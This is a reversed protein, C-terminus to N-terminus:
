PVAERDAAPSTRRRHNSRCRLRTRIGFATSLIVSFVSLLLSGLLAPGFGEVKFGPVIAATLLFMLANVVLLFLGLTLITVPFTLFVVVPRVLAIVVGLVLAAIVASSGSSVSVGRVLKAVVVLAIAIIVLHLFFGLM